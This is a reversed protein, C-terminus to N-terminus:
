RNWANNYSLFSVHSWYIGEWRDPHLSCGYTWWNRNNPCHCSGLRDAYICRWPILYSQSHLYTSFRVKFWLQLLIIQLRYFMGKLIRVYDTFFAWPKITTNKMKRWLEIMNMKPPRYLGHYSVTNFWCAGVKWMFWSTNSSPQHIKLHQGTYHRWWNRSWSYTSMLPSSRCPYLHLISLTRTEPNQRPRQQRNQCRGNPAGRFHQYWRLFSDEARQKPLQRNQLSVLNRRGRPTRGDSYM